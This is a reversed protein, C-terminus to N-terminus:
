KQKERSALPISQELLETGSMHNWEQISILAHALGTQSYSHFCWENPILNQDLIMKHQCSRHGDTHICEHGVHRFFNVALKISTISIAKKERLCQFCCHIVMSVLGQHSCAAYPEAEALHPSLPPLTSLLLVNQMLKM